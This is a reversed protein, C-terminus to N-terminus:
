ASRRVEVQMGAQLQEREALDAATSRRARALLAEEAPPRPAAGHRQVLWREAPLVRHGRYDEVFGALPQTPVAGSWRKGEGDHWEGCDALKWGAGTPDQYRHRTPFHWYALFSKRPATAIRAKQEPSVVGLAALWEAQRAANTPFSFYNGEGFYGIGHCTSMTGKATCCCLRRRAGSRMFEPGLLFGGPKLPRRDRVREAIKHQPWWTQSCMGCYGHNREVKSHTCEGTRCTTGLIPTHVGWQEVTILDNEQGSKQVLVQTVADRGYM